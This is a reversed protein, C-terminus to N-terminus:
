TGTRAWTTVPTRPLEIVVTTGTGVTSRIEITGGHQTVIAHCVSLGLGTGGHARATTYFPDFVRARENESMGRGNDEVMLAVTTPRHETRITVAKASARLANTGINLLVQLIESADIAIPEPTASGDIYIIAGALALEGRLLEVAREIVPLLLQPTRQGPEDRAFRLVSKVIQGCRHAEKAIGALADDLFQPEATPLEARAMEATALISAAPNNIEHAIGAAMTGLAALREARRAREETAHRATSELGLLVFGVVPGAPDRHPMFALEYVRADGTKDIVRTETTSPEGAIALDIHGEIMSYIAPTHLERMHHGVIQARPREWHREYAQNVWVYHAHTDIYALYGPFSDSILLLQEQIRRRDVVETSLAANSAELAQTRESVRRELEDRQARERRRERQEAAHQRDLVWTIYLSATALVVMSSLERSSLFSSPARLHATNFWYGAAVILIAALQARLGWPLVAATAMVLAIYGHVPVDSSLVAVRAMAGATVAVAFIGIGIAWDTRPHRKLLWVCCLLSAITYAQVADLAPVAGPRLTVESLAMGVTAVIVVWLGGRVRAILIAARESTAAASM